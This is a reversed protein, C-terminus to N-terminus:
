LPEQLFHNETSTLCDQSALVQEIVERVCGRGGPRSTIWTAHQQVRTVADAPGVFVGVLPELRLDLLDDGIYLIHQTALPYHKLIRELGIRKDFHGQEIHDFKLEQARREVMPSVRGTLIATKLGAQRALTIAMGDHVHFTKQESHQDSYRISGDTLVGDVDMIILKIAALRATLETSLKPM